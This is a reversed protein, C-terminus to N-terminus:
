LPRLSLLLQVHSGESFFKALLALLAAELEIGDGVRRFDAGAHQASEFVFVKVLKGAADEIFTEDAGVGALDSEVFFFDYGIIQGGQTLTLDLLLGDERIETGRGTFEGRHDRGLKAVVMRGAVLKGGVGDIVAVIGVVFQACFAAAFLTTAIFIPAVFVTAILIKMMRILAFIKGRQRIGRSM